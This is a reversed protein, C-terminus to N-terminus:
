FLVQVETVFQMSIASLNQLSSVGVYRPYTPFDECWDHYVGLLGRDYLWPIAKGGGSSDETIPESNLM